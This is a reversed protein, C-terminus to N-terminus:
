RERGAFAPHVQMFRRGIGSVPEGFAVAARIFPLTALPDFLNRATKLRCAQRRYHAPEVISPSDTFSAAALRPVHCDSAPLRKVVGAAMLASSVQVRGCLHNAPHADQVHCARTGILPLRSM